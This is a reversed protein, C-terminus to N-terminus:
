FIGVQTELLGYRTFEKGLQYKKYLQDAKYPLTTSM